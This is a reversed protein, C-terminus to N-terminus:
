NGFLQQEKEREYLYDAMDAFREAHFHGGADYCGGPSVNGHADYYDDEYHDDEAEVFKRPM